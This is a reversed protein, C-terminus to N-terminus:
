HKNNPTWFDEENRFSVHQLLINYFFYKTDVIPNYCTFCIVKKNTINDICIYYESSVCRKKLIEFKKYNKKFRISEHSNINTCM